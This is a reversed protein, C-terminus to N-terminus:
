PKKEKLKKSRPQGLLTELYRRLHELCEIAVEPSQKAKAFIFAGQLVAQM